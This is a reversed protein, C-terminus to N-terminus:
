KFVINGTGIDEIIISIRQGASEAGDSAYVGEDRDKVGEVKNIWGPLIINGTGGNLVEIRIDVGEPIDFTIKGTSGDVRVSIGAETPLVLDIGGTSGEIYVDYDESSDPLLIQSAGTSGDFHLNTLLIDSLNLLTEGTSADVKLDFPVSPSLGIDWVLEETEVSFLSPLSLIGEQQLTIWREEEGTVRFDLRGYHGIEAEVLNPSDELAYITTKHTSLDLDFHATEAGDLPASITEIIPQPKEELNLSEGNILIFIVGGLLLLALLAGLLSLRRAFLVDLGALIIVVPWLRLLIWLNTSPLIGLNVLLWIMGVGILLVPWFFSRYTKRISEDKKM